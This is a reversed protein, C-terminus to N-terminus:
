GGPNTIITAAQEIRESAYEGVYLAIVIALIIGFLKTMTSESGMCQRPISRM